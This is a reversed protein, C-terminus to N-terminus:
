EGTILFKDIEYYERVESLLLHVVINNLDIAIWEVDPNKKHNSAKYFRGISKIYQIIKEKAALIQRVSAFSAIIALDWVKSEVNFQSVDEGDVSSIIKLIEQIIEQDSSSINQDM